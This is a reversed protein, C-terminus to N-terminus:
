YVKRRILGTWFYYDCNAPAGLPTPLTELAFQVEPELEVDVSKGNKAVKKPGLSLVCNSPPDPM